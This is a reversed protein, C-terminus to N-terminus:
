TTKDCVGLAHTKWPTILFPHSPSVMRVRWGVGNIIM